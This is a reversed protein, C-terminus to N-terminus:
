TAPVEVDVDKVTWGSWADPRVQQRRGTQHARANAFAMADVWHMTLFM